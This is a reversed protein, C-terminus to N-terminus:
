FWHPKTRIPARQKGRMNRGFDRDATREFASNFMAARDYDTYQRGPQTLLRRLAGAAVAEGHSRYLFRPLVDFDNLPADDAGIHWDQGHRPKLFLSLKLAGAKAPLLAVGSPERQTIYQPPAGASDEFRLVTDTYAVPTLETQGDFTAWEIEHIEAYTPAVIAEGTAPVAVSHVHRWCRTRECFEIASMRISQLMMPESAGPAHPRVLHLFEAANITEQTMPM